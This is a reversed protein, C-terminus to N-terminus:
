HEHRELRRKLYVQESPHLSHVRVELTQRDVWLDDAVESPDLPWALAEGLADIDILRRAVARDIAVEERARIAPDPPTPGRQIHEIEHAITCRQEAQM